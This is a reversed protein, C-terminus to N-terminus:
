LSTYNQLPFFFFFPPIKHCSDRSTGCKRPFSLTYSNLPSTELIQFNLFNNQFRLLFSFRCLKFVIIGICRYHSALGSFM